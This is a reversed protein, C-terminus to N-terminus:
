DNGNCAYMICTYMDCEYGNVLLCDFMCLHSFMAHFASLEAFAFVNTVCGHSTSQLVNLLAFSLGMYVGYVHICLWVYMIMVYMICTYMGCECGNVLLCVYMFSQVNCNIVLVRLLKKNAHFHVWNQLLFYCLWTKQKAIWEIIICIAIGYAMSMCAYDYM